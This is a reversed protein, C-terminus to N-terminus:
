DPEHEPPGGSAPAADDFLAKLLLEDLRSATEVTVTQNTDGSSQPSPVDRADPDALKILALAANIRDSGRQATSAMVSALAVPAEAAYKSIAQRRTRTYHAELDATEKDANDLARQYCAAFAAKVDPLDQWGPKIEGSHLTRNDGYWIQKSCTDPRDFVAVAPQQNALAFALLLVTRRKKEIHPPQIARLLDRTVADLWAPLAEPPPDNRTIM